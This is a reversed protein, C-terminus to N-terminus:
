APLIYQYYTIFFIKNVFWILFDGFRCSVHMNACSFSWGAQAWLGGSLMFGCVEFPMTYLGGGDHWVTASKHRSSGSHRARKSLYSCDHATSLTVFFHAPFTLLQRNARRPIRPVGSLVDQAQWPESKCCSYSHKPQCRNNHSFGQTPIYQKMHKEKM